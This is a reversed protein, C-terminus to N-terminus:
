PGWFSPLFIKHLGYENITKGIANKDFIDPFPPFEPMKCSYCKERINENFYIVHFGTLDYILCDIEKIADMIPIWIADYLVNSDGTVMWIFLDIIGIFTVYMIIYIINGIIDLMYWFFCANFKTLFTFGCIITGVFWVLVKAMYGGLIIVSAIMALTKMWSAIFRLRSMIRGSTINAMNFLYQTRNIISRRIDRATDSATRAAYAAADKAAKVGDRALDNASRAAYAAASSATRAAYYAAQGTANSVANAAAMIMDAVDRAAQTAALAMTMQPPTGPIGELISEQFVNCIFITLIFIGLSSIAIKKWFKNM